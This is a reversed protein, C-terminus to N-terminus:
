RWVSVWEAPYNWPTAAHSWSLHLHPNSTHQPDGHDLDGNYGVWRFPARPRNQVPEAWAALEGVLEWSGNPAPVLDAALGLPHEGSQRHVGKISYCDTLTLRYQQILYLLGPIIRRDCQEGPFGPVPALWAAFNPVVDDRTRTLYEDPRRALM